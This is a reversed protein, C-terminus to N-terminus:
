INFHVDVILLNVVRNSEIRVFRVNGVIELPCDRFVLSIQVAFPVVKKVFLIFISLLGSPKM